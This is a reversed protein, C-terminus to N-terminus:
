NIWLHILSSKVTKQCETFTKREVSFSYPNEEFWSLNINLGGSAISNLGLSEHNTNPITLKCFLHQQFKKGLFCGWLRRPVVSCSLIFSIKPSLVKDMRQIVRWWFALYSDWWQQRNKESYLSHHSCSMATSHKYPCSPAPTRKCPPSFLHFSFLM